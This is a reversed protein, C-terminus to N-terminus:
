VTDIKLLLKAPSNVCILPVLCLVWIVLYRIELFTLMEFISLELLFAGGIHM